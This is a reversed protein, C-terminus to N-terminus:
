TRPMSAKAATCTTGARSGSSGPSRWSTGKLAPFWTEYKNFTEKVEALMNRYSSGYQKKLDEMTPLPDHKGNKENNKEVRERAQDLEKEITAPYGASPSRFLKCLSHGGWATKILLVPQQFHDGMM